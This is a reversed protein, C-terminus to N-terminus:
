LNVFMKLEAHNLQTNSITEQEITVIECKRFACRYIVEIQYMKM